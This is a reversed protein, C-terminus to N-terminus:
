EKRAEDGIESDGAVLDAVINDDHQPGTVKVEGVKVGRRYLNFRQDAAPMRGLPFNLVVFRGALNVKAVKGVLSDDPTVILKGSNSPPKTRFCGASIWALMLFLILLLIRM